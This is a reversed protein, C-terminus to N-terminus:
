RVLACTMLYDDLYLKRLCKYKATVRGAFVILSIGLLVWVTAVAAVDIRRHRPHPMPPPM